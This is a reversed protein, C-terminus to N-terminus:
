QKTLTVQVRTSGFDHDGALTNGRVEFEMDRLFTDAAHDLNVRSGRITWTGALNANLEDPVIFQGSTTGNENLTLLISAGAALEDTTIGDATVALRTATYTGAVAQVSPSTSEGCALAAALVLTAALRPAGFPRTRMM